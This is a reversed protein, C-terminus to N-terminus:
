FPYSLALRAQTGLSAFAGEGYPRILSLELQMANPFRHTYAPRLIGGKESFGHLVVLELSSGPSFDYGLRGYLYHAGEVEGPEMTELNPLVYPSLLSGQGRYIYQAQALLGKGVPLTYDAGLVAQLYRENVSLPVRALESPHDAEDFSAPGGYALEGWVGVDGITGAAAVGLFNVRRYTGQVSPVPMPGLGPIEQITLAMELGPLPEFGTFFSAQLDFGALQTEARLALESGKGFGQPKKTGEIADLVMKAQPNEAALIAKMQDDIRQPTFFPVAVGTLSWNSGYYTIQGAWLPDGSMSGSLLSDTTMRAFYNTPNFGDATGWSIVQRGAQYDLDGQYGKLWLQDLAFNGDKQKWDWWGKTSLHLRAGFDLDDELVIRFGTRTSNHLLKSDEGDWLYGLSANFEGTPQMALSPLTLILMTFVIVALKIRRKM